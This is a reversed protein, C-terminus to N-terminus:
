VSVLNSQMFVQAQASACGEHGFSGDYSYIPIEPHSLAANHECPLHHPAVCRLKHRTPEWGSEEVHSKNVFVREELELVFCHTVHIGTIRGM